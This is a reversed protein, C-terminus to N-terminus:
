RIYPTPNLFLKKHNKRAHLNALVDKYKELQIHKLLFVFSNRSIICWKTISKKIIEIDMNM